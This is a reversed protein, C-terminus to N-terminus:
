RQMRFFILGMLVHARGTKLSYQGWSAEFTTLAAKGESESWAINSESDDPKGYLSRWYLAMALFFPFVESISFHLICTFRLHIYLTVVNHAFCPRCLLGYFTVQDRARACTHTYIRMHLRGTSEVSAMRVFKGLTYKFPALSPHGGEIVGSACKSAQLAYAFYREDEYRQNTMLAVALAQHAEAVVVSESRYIKEATELAVQTIRM